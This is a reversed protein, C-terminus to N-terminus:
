TVPNSLTGVGEVEVEVEDGAALPAVGSPTGTLIVDGPELTMVQSIYSILSAPSFVMESSRGRQREEGNVRCLVELDAVDAETLGTVVWPGLPCFTDFGKGRTWQADGRQIDRATVDNGCTIGLVHRWADAEIVSRCRAGIVVALEGEHEVQKSVAPLVIEGGPGLVSSPPKTFLLPAEPVDVGHEAAHAVYNRGVGIIKTPVTPALLELEAPSGLQSGVRPSAGWPGEPLELVAHDRIV